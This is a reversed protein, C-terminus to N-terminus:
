SFINKSVPWSLICHWVEFPGQGIGQIREEFFVANGGYGVPELLGGEGGLEHVYQHVGLGGFVIQGYFALTQVGALCLRKVEAPVEAAGGSSMLEGPLRLEDGAGAPLAYQGDLQAAPRSLGACGV